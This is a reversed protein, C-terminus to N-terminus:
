KGQVIQWRYETSYEGNLELFGLSVSGNCSWGKFITGSKFSLSNPMRGNSVFIQLIDPEFYSWTGSIPQSILSDRRLFFSANCNFTSDKNIELFAKGIYVSDEQHVSNTLKWTGAFKSAVEEPTMPNKCGSGCFFTGIIVVLVRTINLINNSIINGRKM